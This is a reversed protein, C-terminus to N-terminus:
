SRRWHRAIQYAEVITLSGYLLTNFFLHRERRVHFASANYALCAGSVVMLLVHVACKAGEAHGAQCFDKPTM